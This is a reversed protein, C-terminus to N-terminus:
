FRRVYALSWMDASGNDGDMYTYDGRVGNKEDFRYEVGVGYNITDEDASGGPVGIEFNSYGIRAILDTEPSMPLFAVAYIGVQHELDVDIGAIDDDVLGITGEAEVGFYQHVRAGLRLQAGGLDVFDDGINTYGISGYVITEKADQAFAPAAALSLAVAAAAILTKKM